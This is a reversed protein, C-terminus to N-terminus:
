ITKILKNYYYITINFWIDSGFVIVIDIPQVAGIPLICHRIFDGNTM